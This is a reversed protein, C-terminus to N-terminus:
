KLIDKVLQISEPTYITFHEEDSPCWYEIFWESMTKDYHMSGTSRMLTGCEPCPRALKLLKDSFIKNQNEVTM